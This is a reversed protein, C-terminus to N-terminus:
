CLSSVCVPDENRKFPLYTRIFLMGISKNLHGDKYVHIGPIIWGLIASFTLKTNSKIIKLIIM